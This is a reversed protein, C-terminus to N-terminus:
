SGSNPQRFLTQILARLGPIDRRDSKRRDQVVTQIATRREGRRRVLETESLADITDLTSMGNMDALVAKIKNFFRSM